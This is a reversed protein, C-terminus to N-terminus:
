YTFDTEPYGRKFELWSVSKKGELQVQDLVLKASLQNELHAKLFKLRKTSKLNSIQGSRRNASPPNIKIETWTGPWPTMARIFRELTFARPMLTYNKIFSIKWPKKIEKGEMTAQLFEPPIYGDDKKLIRAYSAQSHNQSTPPLFIKVKSKQSKVKSKKDQYDVWVPLITTLVRATMEFLRTYLAEATDNEKIKEKFQAIIPGHDMKADMKIITAGTEKDGNLIAAQVPSAGRYKPLLSPHVVLIGKPFLDILAQPVIKGYAALIGVDPKVAKVQEIIQFISPSDIVMIKKKQAFLKVPFPTLIKQRGVPRDPQTIVAVLRFNKIKHLAKLVPLVFDPTGFFVIKM